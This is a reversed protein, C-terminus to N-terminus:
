KVERRFLKVDGDDVPDGVFTQVVGTRENREFFYYQQKGPGIKRVFDYYSIADIEGDSDDDKFETVTSVYPEDLGGVRHFVTSGGGDPMEVQVEGRPLVETWMQEADKWECEVHPTLVLYSMRKPADPAEDDVPNVRLTRWAEEAETTDDILVYDMFYYDHGAIRRHYLDVMAVVFGDYKLLKPTAIKVSDGRRLQLPNFVKLVHPTKAVKEEDRWWRRVAEAITIYEGGSKENTAM